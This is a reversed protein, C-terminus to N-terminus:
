QDNVANSKKTSLKAQLQYLETYVYQRSKINLM